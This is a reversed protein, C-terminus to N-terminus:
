KEDKVVWDVLTEMAARAADSNANSHNIIAALVYRKGSAGDVYGARAIANSLTGTKLHASGASHMKFRKLTGDVGTIPLSSMLESMYPSRYATQLLRGLAQTSIRENRSLGSGNDLVPADEASIREKWWRQIVARSTAFSGATGPLEGPLVNADPNFAALPVARGLTLFVQQAMVNNSFKNIDRIVEALTSSTSEFAPKANQLAAPLTGFRVGGSLRGGMELWMGLIARTGYSKPDAYAVPWVKEGCGAPYTGYFRIRSADSFDAKIAGRYDDCDTATASLPVTSQTQVGFLPPDYQVQASGSNRDPTFTMVVAKYNILLADPAANYPRLPEGDFSAPDAEPIEFATRDLVIDGTIAKVGVGQLRRLLLWVRELVLKPDGQGKIYVNGTLTGDRVLGDVFVPTSWTYAPGLLDLAAFTTVLKMVSAPNMPITSRHNIRAPMKSDREADMVLISVGDRPVKARALAADVEPPLNQAHLASMLGLGLLVSSFRM